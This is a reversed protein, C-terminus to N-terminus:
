SYIAATVLGLKTLVPFFLDNNNGKEIQYTVHNKNGYLIISDTGFQNFRHIIMERYEAGNRRLNDFPAAGGIFHTETTPDSYFSYAKEKVNLSGFRRKELTDGNWSRSQFYSQAIFDSTQMNKLYQISGGCVIRDPYLEYGYIFPSSYNVDMPEQPMSYQINLSQKDIEVTRCEVWSGYVISNSHTPHQYPGWIFTGHFTSDWNSLDSKVYDKKTRVLNGALDYVQIETTDYLNEGNNLMLYIENDFVGANIASYPKLINKHFSLTLSKGDSGVKFSNITVSDPYDKGQIIYNSQLDNLFIYGYPVNSSSDLPISKSLSLDSQSYINIMQQFTNNPNQKSWAVYILTDQYTKMGIISAGGTEGTNIKTDIYQASVPMLAFVLFLGLFAINTKTM